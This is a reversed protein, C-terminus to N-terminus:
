QRRRASSSCKAAAQAAGSACRMAGEGKRFWAAAVAPGRPRSPSRATSPWPSGCRRSIPRRLCWQKETLHSRELEKEREADLSFNWPSNRYQERWQTLKHTDAVLLLACGRSLRACTDFVCVCVNKKRRREPKSESKRNAMTKKESSEIQKRFKSFTEAPQKAARAFSHKQRRGKLVLAAIISRSARPELLSALARAAPVTPPLLLSFANDIPSSTRKRRREREAEAEEEEEEESPSPLFLRASDEEGEPQCSIVM